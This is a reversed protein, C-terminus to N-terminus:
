LPDLQTFVNGCPIPHPPHSSHVFIEGVFCGRCNAIIQPQNIHMQESIWRFQQHRGNCGRGGGKRVRPPWGSDKAPRGRRVRTNKPDVHGPLLDEGFQASRMTVDQPLCIFVQFCNFIDVAQSVHRVIDLITCSANSIWVPFPIAINNPM